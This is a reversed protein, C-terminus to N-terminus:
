EGDEEEKLWRLPPENTDSVRRLLFLFGRNFRLLVLLEASFTLALALAGLANTTGAGLSGPFIAM